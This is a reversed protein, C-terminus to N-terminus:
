APMEEPRSIVRLGQIRRLDRDFSILDGGREMAVAAVYADAFHVHPVAHYFGIARHLITQEPFQFLESELISRLGLAIRERPWAYIRELVFVVEALTLASVILRIRRGEAGERIRRARAALESPQGTLHRLLVNADVVAESM